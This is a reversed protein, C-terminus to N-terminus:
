RRAFQCGESKYTGAITRGFKPWMAHGREPEGLLAESGTSGSRHLRSRLPSGEDSQSCLNAAVFRAGGLTAQGFGAWILQAGSFDAKVLNANFFFANELVTNRFDAHDLDKGAMLVGRLDPRVDPNDQRWQNWSKVGQNLIAFQREDARFNEKM